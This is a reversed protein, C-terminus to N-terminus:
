DVELALPCQIEDDQGDIKVSIVPWNPITTLIENSKEGVLITDEMKAGAITPNWAYAQGVQVLDMSGPLGLFERPEYGV